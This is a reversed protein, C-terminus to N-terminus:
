CHSLLCLKWDRSFCSKITLNGANEPPHCALNEAKIKCLVLTMKKKRHNTLIKKEQRDHTNSNNILNHLVTWVYFVPSEPWILLQYACAWRNSKLMWCGTQKPQMGLWTIESLRLTEDIFHLPVTGYKRIGLTIHLIANM